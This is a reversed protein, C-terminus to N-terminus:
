GPRDGGRVHHPHRSRAGPVQRRPGHHHQRGLRRRPGRVQRLRAKGDTGGLRGRDKRNGVRHHGAQRQLRLGAAVPGRRPVGARGRRGSGGARGGRRRVRRHQGALRADPDASHRGRARIPPAPLPNGSRRHDHPVPRDPRPASRVVALRVRHALLGRGRRPRRASRGTGMPSPRARRSPGDRGGAAAGRGAARASRRPRRRDRPSRISARRQDSPVHSRRAM